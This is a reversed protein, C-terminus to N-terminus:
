KGLREMNVRCVRGQATSHEKQRKAVEYERGPQQRWRLCDVGKWM